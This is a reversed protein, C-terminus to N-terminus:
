SCFHKMAHERAMCVQWDELHYGGGGQLDTGGEMLNPEGSISQPIKTGNQVTFTRHRTHKLLLAHGLEHGLTKSLCTHPRKTLESYGKNSRESLFIVPQNHNRICTGQLTNGICDMFCISIVKSNNNDPNTSNNNIYHDCFYPILRTRFTCGQQRRVRPNHNRDYLSEILKDHHETHVFDDLQIEQIQHIEFTINAHNTWYKRNMEQVIISLSTENIDDSCRVLDPQRIIYINLQITIPPM